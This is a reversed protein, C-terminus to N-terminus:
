EGKGTVQRAARTATVPRRRQLNVMFRSKIHRYDASDRGPKSHAHGSSQGMYNFGSAKYITGEHGVENDAWAVCAVPTAHAPYKRSWDEAIVKLTKRISCSALNPINQSLWFRALEVIGVTPVGDISRSTWPRAYLAVGVQSQDLIVGYALQAGKRRRHLYHYTKVLQTAFGLPMIEVSVRQRLHREALV